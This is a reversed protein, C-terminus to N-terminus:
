DRLVQKAADAVKDAAKKVSAKAQDAKGEAELREDDTVKGWGEKVKGAADEAAHRAKDHMGM